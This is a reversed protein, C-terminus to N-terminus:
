ITEYIKELIDIFQEKTFPKMLYADAGLELGKEIVTAQEVVSILIIKAQLKEQKLVKIIDLGVMDPLIIDLTIVTPKLSLAKDIAEEANEAEGIVNYGVAELYKRLVSRMYISDDVILVTKQM